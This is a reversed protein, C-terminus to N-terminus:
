VDRNSFKRRFFVGKALFSVMGSVYYVGLVCLGGSLLMSETMAFFVAERLSSLGPECIENPGYYFVFWTTLLVVVAGGTFAHRGRESRKHVYAEMQGVVRLTANHVNGFMMVLAAMPISLWMVSLGLVTIEPYNSCHQWKSIMPVLDSVVQGAEAILSLEPQWGFMGAVFVVMPLACVSYYFWTAQVQYPYEYGERYKPDRRIAEEWYQMAYREEKEAKEDSRIKARSASKIGIFLAILLVACVSTLVYYFFRSGDPKVAIEYVSVMFLLSVFVFLVILVIRLAVYM